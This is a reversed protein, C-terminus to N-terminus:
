TPERGMLANLQGASMQEMMDIFDEDSLQLLLEASVGQPPAGGGDSLSKGNQQAVRLEELQAAASPAAPAPPAAPAARRAPVAPAAPAAAAPAPAAAAPKQFGYVRAQKLIAHAPSKGAKIANGVLWKEEGNFIAIAKQIEQPTFQEQEDNPDKDFESLFIQTLRADKLFQYAQPLHAYEPQAAVSQFDRVFTDRLKTDETTEVVRQQTSQTAEYAYRNRRREQDLAAAYDEEPKIDEEEFPNEPPANPDVAAEPPAAARAQLAENIIALRENVKIQKEREKQVEAEAAAARDQAAKLERQHKGLSVTKPPKKGAQAEAALQAPTKPTRDAAAPAPEAPAAPDVDPDGDPDADPDADPDPDGTPAPPEGTRMSEFEALEDATLGTAEDRDGGSDGGEISGDSGSDPLMEPEPRRAITQPAMAQQMGIQDTNTMGLIMASRSTSGLLERHSM